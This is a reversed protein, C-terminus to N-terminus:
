AGRACTSCRDGEAGPAMLAGCRSCPRWGRARLAKDARYHLEMTERVRERVEPVEILGVLGEIEEAEHPDLPHEALEDDTVRVNPDRPKNAPEPRQGLPGVRFRLRRVAEQGALRNLKAIIDGSRSQLQHSCVSDATVVCLLGGQCSEARTEASVIPGVAEPWLALIRADSLRELLKRRRLSKTLLGDARELGTYRRSDEPM